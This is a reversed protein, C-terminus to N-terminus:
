RVQQLFDAGKGAQLKRKTVPVVIRLADAHHLLPLRIDQPSVQIPIFLGEAAIQSQRLRIHVQVIDHNLMFRDAVRLRPEDAPNQGPSLQRVAKLRLFDAAIIQHRFQQARDIGPFHIIDVADGGHQFLFQLVM